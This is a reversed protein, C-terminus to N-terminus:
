GWGRVVSVGCGSNTAAGGWESAAATRVGGHQGPRRRAADGDGRGERGAQTRGGKERERERERERKKKREKVKVPRNACM